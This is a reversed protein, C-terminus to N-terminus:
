RLFRLDGLAARGEAESFLRGQELWFGYYDAGDADRGMVDGVRLKTPWIGRVDTSTVCQVRTGGVSAWARYGKSGNGLDGFGFGLLVQRGRGAFFSQRFPVGQDGSAPGEVPLANGASDVIWFLGYERDLLVQLTRGDVGLMTFLPYRGANGRNTTKPDAGSTPITFATFLTWDGSATNSEDVATIPTFRLELREDQSQAVGYRMPRAPLDAIGTADAYTIFDVAILLDQRNFENNSSVVKAVFSYTGAGSSGQPDVDFTFPTWGTGQVGGPEPVPTGGVGGILPGQYVSGEAIQEGNKIANGFFSIKVSANVPWDNPGATPSPAMRYLWLRGKVRPRYGLATDAGFKWTGMRHTDVFQCRMIPGECPPPPVSAYAGPAGFAARAVPVATNSGGPPTLLEVAPTGGQLYVRAHNVGGKSIQLPRALVMSAPTPTDIAWVGTSDGRGMFIRDRLTGNVSQRFFASQVNRDGLTLSPAFLDGFHVSDPSYSILQPSFENIWSGISNPRVLVLTDTVTMSNGVAGTRIAGLLGLWNLCIGPGNYRAAAHTPIGLINMSVIQHSPDSITVRHLASSTEDGGTLFSSPDSTPFLYAPQTSRDAWIAGAVPTVQSSSCPMSLMLEGGSGLSKVGNGSPGSFGPGGSGFFIATTGGPHTYGAFPNTLGAPVLRPPGNLVAATFDLNGDVNFRVRARGGERDEYTTWGNREPTNAPFVGDDPLAARPESSGDIDSAYARYDDRAINLLRNNPWGDGVSLTVVMRRGEIGGGPFTVAASHFHMYNQQQPIPVLQGGPEDAYLLIAPDLNWGAEPSNRWCRVLFLQGGMSGSNSRYDTYAAFFELIKGSAADVGGPPVWPGSAMWGEGRHRGVQIEPGLRHLKWKREGHVADPADTASWAVNEDWYALSVAAGVNTDARRVECAGLICGDAIVFSMPAHKYGPSPDPSQGQFLNQTSVLGLGKTRSSEPPYVGSAAVAIWQQTNGPTTWMEVMCDSQDIWHGAWIRSVNVQSTRMPTPTPGPLLLRPEAYRRVGAPVTKGDVSVSPDPRSFVVELNSAVEGNDWRVWRVVPTPTSGSAPTAQRRPGPARAQGAATLPLGGALVAALGVATAARRLADLSTM